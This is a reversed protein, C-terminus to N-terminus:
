QSAARFLAAWLRQCQSTAKEWYILLCCHWHSCVLSLVVSMFIGPQMASLTIFSGKLFVFVVTVVNVWVWVHLFLNPPLQWWDGSHFSPSNSLTLWSLLLVYVNRHRWLPRSLTEFWWGGLQKCLRKNLRLDFFVDFSRTVPRQTPFEGSVLSYGACIALLASFTEMQHRWWSLVFLYVGTGRIEIRPAYDSKLITCAYRVWQKTWFHLLQKTDGSLFDIYHVWVPYIKFCTSTVDTSYSM